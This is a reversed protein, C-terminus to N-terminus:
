LGNFRTARKVSVQIQDPTTGLLMAVHTLCRLVCCSLPNLNRQASPPQDQARGLIHGTSSRDARFSIHFRLIRAFLSLFIM